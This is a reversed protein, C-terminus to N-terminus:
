PHKIAGIKATKNAMELRDIAAGSTNAVVVTTGALVSRTSWNVRLTVDYTADLDLSSRNVTGPRISSALPAPTPSRDPAPDASRAVAPESAVPVTSRRA